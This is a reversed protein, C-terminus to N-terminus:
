LFIVENLRGPLVLSLHEYELTKPNRGPQESLRAESMEVRRSGDSISIVAM